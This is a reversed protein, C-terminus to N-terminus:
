NIARKSTAVVIIYIKKNEKLDDVPARLSYESWMVRPVDTDYYFFTEESFM